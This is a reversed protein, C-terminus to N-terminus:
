KSVFENTYAQTLDLPKSLLQMDLLVNQMNQWAQSKAYGPMKTKWFEISTALIEKQVKVDLKDLGEVYKKSIEFAEDPNDITDAIGHLVAEVMHKVLDPNQAITAENSVLGNSALQVFDAVRMENIDVGQAKLQIPENNDYVVVADDHNSVLSQVQNFGISDLTVDAEKLGGAKLLARLGVYSAGFLGPIGIKKGKLDAPTHINASTKSVVAVPYDQWWAMVNKVPLSQARALLVQDGSALTFPLKNAGVLALGDTEYSYDFQVDLGADRFYGKDLAVYFPAFQVNPIYGMPLRIKTLSTQPVPTATPQRRVDITKKMTCGALLSSILLIRSFVNLHRM